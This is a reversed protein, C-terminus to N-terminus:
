RFLNGDMEGHGELLLDSCTVLFFQSLRFHILVVLSFDQSFELLCM